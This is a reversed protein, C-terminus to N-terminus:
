RRNIGRRLAFGGVVIALAGTLIGLGGLTRATRDISGSGGVSAAGTVTVAPASASTAPNATSSTTDGGNAASTIMLVPAPHDPEPGGAPTPDGWTVVSGDSYTQVAVFTITRVDPVPGVSLDFEAFQGVAIGTSGQEPTFVVDSVAESLNVTGVTVPTALPTKSVLATWGPMQRTSVSGFPAEAPLKIELKVTTATDSENPVRFTIKAYGGAEVSTPNVTVHALATGAGVLLAIVGGALVTAIRAIPRRGATSPPDFTSSFTSSFTSLDSV